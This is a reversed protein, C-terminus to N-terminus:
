GSTAKHLEDLVPQTFAALEAKVEKLRALAAEIGMSTALKDAVDERTERWHNRASTLKAGLANSSRM